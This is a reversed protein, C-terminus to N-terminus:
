LFLFIGCLVAELDVLRLLDYISPGVIGFKGLIDWHVKVLGVLVM